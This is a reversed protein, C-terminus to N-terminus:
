RGRGHRDRDKMVMYDGRKKMQGPPGGHPHRWYRPPVNVIATPVYRASVAAFPGRHTRARYWYGDNFAYWYVGYRFVDYDCADNVVYVTSGPVIAVSPEHQFVVVPPPPADGINISVGVSTGASATLPAAVISALLFWWLTRRKM